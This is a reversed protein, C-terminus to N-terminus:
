YKMNFNNKFNLRNSLYLFHLLAIFDKFNKLNSNDAFWQNLNSNKVSLFFM